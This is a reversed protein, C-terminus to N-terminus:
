DMRARNSQDFLSSHPDRNPCVLPKVNQGTEAARGTGDAALEAFAIAARVKTHPDSEWSFAVTFIPRNWPSPYPRLAAADAQGNKALEIAIVRASTAM